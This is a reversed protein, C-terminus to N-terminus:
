DIGFIMKMFGHVLSNGYEWIDSEFQPFSITGIYFIEEQKASISVKLKYISLTKRCSKPSFLKEINLSVNNNFLCM